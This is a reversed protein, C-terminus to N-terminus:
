LWVCKRLCATNFETTIGIDGDLCRLSVPPSATDSEDGLAEWFTTNWLAKFPQSHLHVRERRAEKLYIGKPKVLDGEGTSDKLAKSLPPVFLPLSGAM